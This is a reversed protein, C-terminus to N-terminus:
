RGVVAIGDPTGALEVSRLVTLSPVDIMTLAGHPHTVWAHRGDASIAIVKPGEAVELVARREGTAVDYAVVNADGSHVVLGTRGDPTFAIRSAQSGSFRRSATRGTSAEYITLDGIRYNVSWIWRLDPTAIADIEGELGEFVTESGTGPAVLTVAGGELNAVVLADDPGRADVLWAGSRSLPYRRRVSGDATDIGILMSPQGSAGWLTGHRDISVDHVSIGDPLRWVARVRPDPAVDIVTISSGGADAIWATRGDPSAAIEHPNRGTALTGIRDLTAASFLAVSDVGSLAVAVVAGPQAPRDAASRGPSSVATCLLVAVLLNAIRM